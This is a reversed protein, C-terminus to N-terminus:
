KLTLVRKMREEYRAQHFKPFYKKEYKELFDMEINLEFLHRTKPILTNFIYICVLSLLDNM